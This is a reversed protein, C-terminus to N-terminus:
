EIRPSQSSTIEIQTGACDTRMEVVDLLFEVGAIGGFQDDNGHTGSQEFRSYNRTPRRWKAPAM